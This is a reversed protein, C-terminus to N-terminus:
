FMRGSRDGLRSSELGLAVVVKWVMKRSDRYGRLSSFAAVARRCVLGRSHERSKMAGVFGEEMCQLV